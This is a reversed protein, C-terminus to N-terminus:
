VAHVRRGRARGHGEGSLVSLPGPVRLRDRRGGRAQGPGGRGRAGDSRVGPGLSRVPGGRRPARVLPEGGGGRVGRAAGRGEARADGQARVDARPLRRRGHSSPVADVQARSDGSDASLADAVRVRDRPRPRDSGERPRLGRCARRRKLGARRRKRRRREGRAIVGRPPRRPPVRPPGRPVRALRPRRLSPLADQGHRPSARRPFFRPAHTFPFPSARSPPLAPPHTGVRPPRPSTRRLPPFPSFAGTPSELLANRGTALSEIVKEMMALQCDYADYPFEVDYTIGDVTLPYPPM